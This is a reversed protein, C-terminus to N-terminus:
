QSTQKEKQEGVTGIMWNRMFVEPFDIRYRHNSKRVLDIPFNRSGLRRQLDLSRKPCDHRNM